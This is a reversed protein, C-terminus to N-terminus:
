GKKTEQLGSCFIVILTDLLDALPLGHKRLAEPKVLAQVTELFIVMVIRPDVNTILGDEQARRILREVFRIKEARYLEIRSWLDPLYKDLDEIFFPGLRVIHDRIQTLAMQLLYLPDAQQSEVSEITDSIQFFANDVVAAAIEEKGNFYQYITKKSMGLRDALDNVTTNKYGRTNFLDHAARVIRLRNADEM